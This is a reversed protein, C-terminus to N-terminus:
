GPMGSANRERTLLHYGAGAVMSPVVPEPIQYTMEVELHEPALKMESVWTRIIQKQQAPTSQALAKDAQRRGALAAAADIQPPEGTPAATELLRAGDRWLIRGGASL